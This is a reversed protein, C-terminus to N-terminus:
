GLKHFSPKRDKYTAYYKYGLSLLHKETEAFYAGINKAAHADSGITIIEGGLELYRKLIYPHPHPFHLGKSLGATNVEIGKGLEIIRKLIEDLLDTFDSPIYPVQIYRCVYDLHGYVDFDEFARVNELISHFYAGYGLNGPFKDKYAPYYPDIGKVLHSSAIVFDFPYQKVLTTLKPALYDMVGLEIGLRIEIDTNNQKLETIAKTYSDLDLLFDNGKEDIPYDLDMHDTICLTTIQNKKAFSIMNELSETSDSSFLSHTHFDATIM